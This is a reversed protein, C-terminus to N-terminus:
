VVRSQFDLPKISPTVVSLRSFSVTRGYFGSRAAGSRPGRHLRSDAGGNGPRIRGRLFIRTGLLSAGLVAKESSCVRAATQAVVSRKDAEDSGLPESDASEICSHTCSGQRHARERDSCGPRPVDSPDTGAGSPGSGGEFRPIPVQDGMGPPIQDRIDHTFRAPIREDTSQPLENEM